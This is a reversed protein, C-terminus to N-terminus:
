EYMLGERNLAALAAIADIIEGWASRHLMHGMGPIIKLKAGPVANATDIGCDVPVLPDNGGHIVLTPIVVSALDKKRSGSTIIAALQRANGAPNIGRAFTQKALKKVRDADMPMKAGNLVQWTEIFNQIFPEKKVPVPRFLIQLAEPSPGPLGPDGTTSMISTLTRVRKPYQIAILQAIMGGMSIGVVHASGINLADMLAITDDAMDCLTYPVPIAKGELLEYIDPMGFNDLKTSLGMDRNDFRIVRYGMAALGFCFEEEWHIMQTGLGMILLVPPSAHDGFTDYVIDIGNCKAFKESSHAIYKKMDAGNSSNLQIVIGRYFILIIM